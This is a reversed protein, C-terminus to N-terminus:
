WPVDIYNKRGTHYAWSTTTDSGFLREADPVTLVKAILLKIIVTRWGRKLERGIKKIKKFGPRVAGEEFRYGEGRVYEYKPLDRGSISKRRSIVDIDPVEEEIRQLISHEPMIGREYACLTEYNGFNLDTKNLVRVIAKKDKMFPNDIFAISLPLVTRLRKELMDSSLVQGLQKLDNTPDILENDVYVAHASEEKIRDVVDQTQKDVRNGHAILSRQRDDAIIHM